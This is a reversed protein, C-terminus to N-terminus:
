PTRPGGTREREGLPSCRGAVPAARLLFYDVLGWAELWFLFGKQQPNTCMEGSVKPVNPQLFRLHWVHAAFPWILLFLKYLCFLCVILQLSTPLLLTWGSVKDTEWVDLEAQPHKQCCASLWLGTHRLAMHKRNVLYHLETGFLGSLSAASTRPASRSRCAKERRAACRCFQCRSQHSVFPSLVFFCWHGAPRFWKRKFLIM